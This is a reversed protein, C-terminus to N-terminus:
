MLLALIDSIDEGAGLWRTLLKYLTVTVTVTVTVVCMYM